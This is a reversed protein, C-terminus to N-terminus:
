EGPANLIPLTITFRSGKGMESELSIQGGMIEVLQKTIALGLGSGRNERTISNSVQRFPEFISQHESQPIGVGTDCVEITWHAPVPCMFSVSVEGERTFKIANGALNFVIQQLRNADGFLENPLDPSIETKFILKKKEALPVMTSKIKELLEAPDFYENHLSVSKSEIQSQDLLDNVINTLYHTSEIINDVAFRQKKTLSGFAKFQLLEAYGLIGGLPTRLEHSVRSLLQSKFRSADLAQDRSLSLAEQAQRLQTIERAVAQFGIVEEGDMILQVNQGVWAIQGEMTMVPFEYYTGKTRSLYQHNYVRKLKHRYEPTTVELYNRGLIEEESHYGMMKLAAPNAYTFNGRTDTRYIIDSANEVIQRFRAESEQLLSEAHKREAIEKVASDYLNANDLVLACLRAFLIGTEVQEPTFRYNSKSRGLTLVGLCRDGVMVPFDATAHLPAYIKTRAEWIANDALMVPQHTDFAQWSLKAQGRTLRDGKLGHQNETFARVVLVGDQELMLKSFPADLLIASRDVVAQLLDDLDRRNLLDLTVQHLISLYDNQKQLQEQLIKQETIDQKIEVFNIIEGDRNYIPAITAFEWFVTGDKRRNQFEGRWIEGTNIIKWTEDENLDTLERVGSLLTPSRGLVEEFSYGSVETFKSNVYEIMGRGDLIMVTNGSQEVAQSLKRLQEETKRQETVDEKIAVYNTVKNNEDLVPAITTSEWYLTGDKKKNNFVGRWVQGSSITEWLERYFEPDHRGSKLIRPNKGLVEELAYGSGEEFKPNAYEINGDVDTIVVVNGGQEIARFYKRLEANSRIASDHAEALDHTREEVRRELLDREQQLLNLAQTEKQWSRELNDLLLVASILIVFASVAYLFITGFGSLLSFPFTSGTVTKEFPVFRGSGILVAFVGVTLLGIVLAYFAGRPSSLLASVVVFFMFLIIGPAVLGFNLTAVVGFAYIISFFISIRLYYNANRQYGLAAFAIACTFLVVGGVISRFQSLLFFLVVVLSVTAMLRTVLTFMRERTRYWNPNFNSPVVLDNKIRPYYFGILSQIFPNRGEPAPPTAEAGPEVKDVPRTHIPTAASQAFRPQPVNEDLSTLMIVRGVVQGQQNELSSLRIEYRRKAEGDGFSIKDRAQTVRAFREMLHPWPYFIEEAKKGLANEVPVGIMHAAAGNIDVVNDNADLVIMGDRMADVVLDRALPSVDMLHFGLIAWVLLSVSITFGFPTFDFASGSIIYALNGIWPALVAVFFLGRQGRFVGRTGLVSRVMIVTGALVMLQAYGWYVYFWWGHVIHLGHFDGSLVDYSQWVLGHMETTFVLVLTIIPIILLPTVLRPKLEYSQITYTLAFFVWTVPILAIGFYQVKGWFAKVSLGISGIEMIYGFTWIVVGVALLILMSIGKVKRHPWMYVVSWGSVMMAVVLPLIYLSFEFSM